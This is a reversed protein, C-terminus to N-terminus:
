RVPASSASSPSSPTWSSSSSAIHSLFVCDEEVLSVNCLLCGLGLVTFHHLSSTYIGTDHFVIAARGFVAFLEDLISKGARLGPGVAGTTPTFPVPVLVRHAWEICPLLLSILLRM